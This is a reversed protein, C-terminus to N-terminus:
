FLNENATLGMRHTTATTSNNWPSIVQKPIVPAGRIDIVSNRLPERVSGIIDAAELFNQNQLISPVGDPNIEGPFAGTLESMEAYTEVMSPSETAVIDEVALMEAPDVVGNSTYAEFHDGVDNFQNYDAVSLSKFQEDSGMINQVTMVLVVLVTIALLSYMVQEKSLQM